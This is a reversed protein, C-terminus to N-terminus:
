SGIDDIGVERLDEASLLERISKKLTSEFIAKSLGNPNAASTWWRDSNMM